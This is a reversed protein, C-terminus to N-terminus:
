DRPELPNRSDALSEDTLGMHHYSKIEARGITWLQPKPVTTLRRAPPDVDRFNM